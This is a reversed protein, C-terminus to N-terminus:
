RREHIEDRRISALDAHFSLGEGALALLENGAERIRRERSVAEQLMERVFANVTTDREAAFIKVARILETPLNLTINRSVM